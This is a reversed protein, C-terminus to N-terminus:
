QSQRHCKYVKYNLNNGVYNLGLMEVLRLTKEDNKDVAAYIGDLGFTEVMEQGERLKDYFSIFISKTFKDVRPLHVIVFQNNYELDVSFDKTEWIRFRKSDVQPM